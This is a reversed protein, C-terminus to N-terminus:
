RAPKSSAPSVIVPASGMRLYPHESFYEIHIHGDPEYQGGAFAEINEALLERAPQSGVFM